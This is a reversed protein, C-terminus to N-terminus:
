MAKSQPCAKEVRGVLRRHLAMKEIGRQVAAFPEGAAIGSGLAVNEIHKQDGHSDHQKGLNVWAHFIRDFNGRSM